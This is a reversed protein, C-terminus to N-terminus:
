ALAAEAVEGASALRAIEGILAEPSIPKGVVGSMGAALYEARQHAMVNATLAIIPLDRAPAELARIRRAAEVGDIGPMQIDMLILDFAGHRAAEVGREGDEALQVEAGLGQLMKQAILRNTANDEVVLISLGDLVGLDAHQVPQAPAAKPAAIEIWFTSGEGPTSFVGVKGGMMEALRQSIALGLGTGGFRRTTSADAQTFRQFLAAQAEDSIGVGTDLVEIRLRQGGARRITAAKVSVSGDLTFKVANGILNFLVQRLRVPDAMVWGDTASRDVTLSLGKAEAQPRILSVVGEILHGPNIPEPNLELKGAEIKSFDLVDNLLQSLMQGCGAAEVLLKQGEESLPEKQLLHLIGLVGNMPTRIEHSMNALFTAKAESAAEAAKLAQDLATVNQSIGRLAYVGPGRAETNFTAKLTIWDGDKTKLRHLVEGSKGQQIGDLMAAYFADYDQPHVLANFQDSTRIEDPEYGTMVCFEHSWHRNDSEPEYTWFGVGAAEALLERLRRVEELEAEREREATVDRLVGMLSGDPLAKHYGAYWRFRGNKHMVRVTQESAGTSVLMKASAKMIHLDDPHCFEMCHRGVLEQASWGTARTWAPNVVTFRGEGDALAMLERSHEFLGRIPDAEAAL